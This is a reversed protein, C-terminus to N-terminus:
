RGYTIENTGEISTGVRDDGLELLGTAPERGDGPRGDRPAVSITLEYVRGTPVPAGGNPRRFTAFPGTLRLGGRAAVVRLEPTSLEAHETGSPTCGAALPDEPAQTLLCNFTPLEVEAAARGTAASVRVRPYTVTVGVAHRELVIGGFTLRASLADPRPAESTREPRGPDDHARVGAPATAGATAVAAAAGILLLATVAMAALVGTSGLREDRPGPAPLPAAPSSLAAWGGAAVAPTRASGPPSELFASLDDEGFGATSPAAPPPEESRSRHRRLALVGLGALAPLLIGLVVGLVLWPGATVPIDMGTLM